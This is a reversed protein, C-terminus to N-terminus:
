SHKSYSILIFGYLVLIMTVSVGVTYLILYDVDLAMIGSLIVGAFILKAVDLCFKGAELKLIDCQEQTSAVTNTDSQLKKNQGKKVNM